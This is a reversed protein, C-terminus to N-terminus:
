VQKFTMDPLFLNKWCFGLVSVSGLLHGVYNTLTGCWWQMDVKAYKGYVKWHIPVCEVWLHGMKNTSHDSSVLNRWNICSQGAFSVEIKEAMKCVWRRCGVVARKLAELTQFFAVSRWGSSFNQLECTLTTVNESQTPLHIVTQKRKLYCLYDSTHIMMMMKKCLICFHVTFYAIHRVSLSVTKARVVARLYLITVTFVCSKFFSLGWLESLCSQKLLM